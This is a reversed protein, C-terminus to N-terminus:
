RRARGAYRVRVRTLGKARFGLREAARITVDIIRGTVFPGRDNIRLRLTKGNALNQVVVMSGLPLTPHAATLGQPDYPEGSATPKGAFKAGYFSAIGTEDYGPQARPVYRTGNVVYPKGVGRRRSARKSRRAVDTSKNQPAPTVASQWPGTKEPSADTPQQQIQRPANLALSSSGRSSARDACGAMTGAMALIVGGLVFLTIPRSCRPRRQALMATPMTTTEAVHRDQFTDTRAFIM